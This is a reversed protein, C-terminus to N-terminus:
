THVLLDWLNDYLIEEFERGLPEQKSLLQAYFAAVTEEFGFSSTEYEGTFMNTHQGYTNSTGEIKVPHHLLSSTDSQSSQGVSLQAVLLLGMLGFGAQMIIAGCASTNPTEEVTYAFNTM